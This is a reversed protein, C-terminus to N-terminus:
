ALAALPAITLPVLMEHPALGGHQSLVPTPYKPNALPTGTKDWYHGPQLVVLLDGLTQRIAEANPVPGLLPRAEDFSLLRDAPGILDALQAAVEPASAKNPDLYVHLVRGSFGLQRTHSLLWDLNAGALPIRTHIDLQGHDAAIILVTDKLRSSKIRRALWHLLSELQTLSQGVQSSDGGYTHLLFDVHSFYLSAWGQNMSNLAEALRNMADLPDTFGYQPTAGYSLASLGSGRITKNLIAVRSIELPHQHQLGKELALQSVDFGEEVLSKEAGERKLSLMDVLSGVAEQWVVHGMIGHHAPMLGQYLSTLAASTISPFVSTVWTGYQQNLQSLLPSRALEKFGLSDVVLLAVRQATQPSATPLHALLHPYGQPAHGLLNFITPMINAVSRTPHPLLWNPQGDWRLPTSEQLVTQPIGATEAFDPNKMSM